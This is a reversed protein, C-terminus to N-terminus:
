LVIEEPIVAFYNASSRRAFFWEGFNGFFRAFFGVLPGDFDVLQTMVASLRARDEDLM